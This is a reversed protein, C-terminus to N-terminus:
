CDKRRSAESSTFRGSSSGGTLLHLAHSTDSLGVQGPALIMSPSAGAAVIMGMEYVQKAADDMELAHIVAGATEGVYLHHLTAAACGVLALLEIVALM